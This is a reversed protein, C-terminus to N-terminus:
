FSFRQFSFIQEPNKMYVWRLIVLVQQQFSLALTPHGQDNSADGPEGLPSPNKFKATIASQLASVAGLDLRVGMKTFDFFRREFLGLQANLGVSAFLDASYRSGVAQPPSGNVGQELDMGPQSGSNGFLPDFRAGLLGGSYFFFCMALEAGV